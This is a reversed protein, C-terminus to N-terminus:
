REMERGTGWHLQITIEGPSGDEDESELGLERRAQEALLDM